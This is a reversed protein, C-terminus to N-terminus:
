TKHGIGWAKKIDNCETTNQVIHGRNIYRFMYGLANILTQTNDRAMGLLVNCRRCILGRFKNLLHDHDIVLMKYTDKCIPCQGKQEAYLRHYEGIDMGYKNMVRERQYHPMQKM